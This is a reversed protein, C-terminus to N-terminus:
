AGSTAFRRVRSHFALSGGQTATGRAGEVRACRRRGFFTIRVITVVIASLSTWQLAALARLPRTLSWLLPFPALCRACVKMYASYNGSYYTLQKLRFQIIDTTVADLFAADHSVMLVMTDGIGECLQRSLWLVGELDLHNTPEDLLLLDTPPATGM